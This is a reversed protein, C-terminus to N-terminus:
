VNRPRAHRQAGAELAGTQWDCVEFLENRWVVDHDWGSPNVPLGYLYLGGDFIVGHPLAAGRQQIGMLQPAGGSAPDKHGDLSDCFASFISRSTGTADSKAWAQLSAEISPTGTGRIAAAGSSPVEIQCESWGQSAGWALEFLHFTAEMGAGRRSCFLVSLDAGHRRPYTQHTSKLVQCVAAFREEPSAANPFLQGGDMLSSIQGLVQSTYLVDGCYGLLDPGSASGVVKRALDWHTETDWTVRSDSAMYFGTPVRSDAAGWAILSTM